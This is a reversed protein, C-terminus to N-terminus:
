SVGQKERSWVMRRSNRKETANLPLVAAMADRTCAERSASEARAGVAARLLPLVSGSAPATGPLCGTEVRARVLEKVDESDREDSTEATADRRGLWM